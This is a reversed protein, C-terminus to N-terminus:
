LYTQGIVRGFWNTGDATFAFLDAKSATGTLTPALSAPWRATAPWTILRGGTADQKVLMVFSRGATPTPFTLTTSAGLTLNQVSGLTLDITYAAGSITATNTEETYGDTFVCAQLTKNLLTQGGVLTVEGPPGSLAIVWDALTGSGGTSQVNTTLSGTGSNHATIQGVMFNAANASSTITVWQGIVLSKGTQITFTKSGTGILTSTTSTAQTGPSNVATLAAAAAATAQTVTNQAVAVMQSLAPVFRARHGGNALGTTPNADDTVTSGDGGVGAPFTVSAM